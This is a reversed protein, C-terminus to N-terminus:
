STTLLAIMSAITLGNLPSRVGFDHINAETALTKCRVCLFHLTVLSIFPHLTLSFKVGEEEQPSSSSSSLLLSHDTVDSAAAGKFEPVICLTDRDDEHEAWLLPFRDLTLFVVATESFPWSLSFHYTSFASFPITGRFGPPLLGRPVAPSLAGHVGPLLRFRFSLPYLDRCVIFHEVCEHLFLFDCPGLAAPFTCFSFRVQVIHKFFCSSIFFFSSFSLSFSPSLSCAKWLLFSSSSSSSAVHRM